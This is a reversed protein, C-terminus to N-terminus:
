GRAERRKMRKYRAFPMEKYQHQVVYQGLWMFEKVGATPGTFRAVREGDLDFFAFVPTARVGHDKFAWDKMKKVNGQFDTIEVDGEIDVAFIAFHERFYEQVEVQNLVTQKMRHCFPCEEMEFFILVGDKGQERAIQLEEQYNGFSEQFFHQEPDRTGSASAAALLQALLLLVVLGLSRSRPVLTM